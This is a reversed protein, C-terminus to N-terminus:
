LMGTEIGMKASTSCDLLLADDVRYQHKKSPHGGAEKWALHTHGQEFGLVVYDSDPMICGKLGKKGHHRYEAKIGDLHITDGIKM